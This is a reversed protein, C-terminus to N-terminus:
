SLDAEISSHEDSLCCGQDSGQEQGQVQKWNQSAIVWGLYIRIKTLSNRKCSLSRTLTWSVLQSIVLRGTQRPWLPNILRWIKFSSCTCSVNTSPQMREGRDRKNKKNLTWTAKSFYVLIFCSCFACQTSLCNFCVCLKFQTQKM